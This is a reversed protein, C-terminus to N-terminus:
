AGKEYDITLPQLKKLLSNESKRTKGNTTTTRFVYGQTPGSCPSCREFDLRAGDDTILTGKSSSNFRIQSSLHLSLYELWKHIKRHDYPKVFAVYLFDSLEM